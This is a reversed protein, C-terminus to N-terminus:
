LAEFPQLNRTSHQLIPASVSEPPHYVTTQESGSSIASGLLLATEARQMREITEDPDILGCIACISESSRLGEPSAGSPKTNRVKKRDYIQGKQRRLTKGFYGRQYRTKYGFLWSSTTATRCPQGTQAQFKLNSSNKPPRLSRLNQCGEHPATQM